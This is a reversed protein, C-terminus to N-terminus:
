DSRRRRLHLRVVCLWRAHASGAAVGRGPSVRRGQPVILAQAATDPTSRGAGDQDKPREMGKLRAHASRLRRDTVAVRVRLEDRERTVEELRQLLVGESHDSTSAVRRAPAEMEDEDSGRRARSRLALSSLVSDIARWQDDLDTGIVIASRQPEDTVAGLPTWCVASLAGWRTWALSARAEPYSAAVDRAKSWGRHARPHLSSSANALLGCRSPPVHCPFPRTDISQWRSRPRSRGSARAGSPWWRRLAHCSPSPHVRPWGISTRRAGSPPVKSTALRNSPVTDTSSTSVRLTRAVHRAPPVPCSSDGSPSWSEPDGAAGLPAGRWRTGTPDDDWPRHKKGLTPETLRPCLPMYRQVGSRLTRTAIVDIQLNPAIVAVVTDADVVALPELGVVYRAMLLGVVQAGLFNPGGPM